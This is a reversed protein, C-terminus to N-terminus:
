PKPSILATSSIAHSGQQGTNPGARMRKLVEGGRHQDQEGAKLETERSGVPSMTAGLEREENKGDADIPMARDEPAAGVAIHRLRDRSQRFSGRHREQAIAIAAVPLRLARVPIRSQRGVDDLDPAQEDGIDMKPGPSALGLPQDVKKM